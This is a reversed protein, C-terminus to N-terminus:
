RKEALCSALMAFAKALRAVSKGVVSEIDFNVVAGCKADEEEEAEEEEEEEKGEEEEEEEEGDKDEGEEEEEDEEVEVKEGWGFWGSPCRGSDGAVFANSAM